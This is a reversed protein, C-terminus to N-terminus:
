WQFAAEILDIQSTAPTFTTSEEVKEEKKPEEKKQGKAKAAAVKVLVNKYQAYRVKCADMKLSHMSHMAKCLDALLTIEQQSGKWYDSDKAGTKIRKLIEDFRAKEEKYSKQIDRKTSGKSVVDVIENFNAKIWEKTLDKKEGKVKEMMVKKAKIMNTESTGTVTPVIKEVYEQKLADFEEKGSEDSAIMNKRLNYFKSVIEFRLKNCNAIAEDFADINFENVQGLKAGDKIFDVDSAKLSVLSKISEQRKKEFFNLINEYAAKIRSWMGEFIKAAKTKFAELKSGEYVMVSGTNEYVALEEIGVSEFMANIDAEACIAVQMSQEFFSFCDNPIDKSTAISNVHEYVVAM